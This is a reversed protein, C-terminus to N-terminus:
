LHSHIVQKKYVEYLTAPVLATAENRIMGDCFFTRSFSYVFVNEIACKIAANGKKYLEEALAMCEKAATTHHCVIQAQTYLFMQRVMDYVNRCKSQKCIGSLEPLSREFLGPLDNPSIM